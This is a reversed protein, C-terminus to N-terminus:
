GARSAGAASRPRPLRVAPAASPGAGSVATIARGGGARKGAYLAEDARALLADATEARDWEAVGVSCASGPPLAALLADAVRQALPAACGPLVAVFEDGGYRALVDGPRLRAQWGVAAASILRDGAEHGYTDNFVKLGDLDLMLVSLPTRTRRARGLEATMAEVMGRRNVLGTLPDRRAQEALATALDSRSIAVAAEEALVGLAAVVRHPLADLRDPFTLCLAGIPRDPGPVPVFAASAVGAASLEVLARGADHHFAAPLEAHPVLRLQGDRFSRVTGATPDALSLAPMAAAEVGAAATCHLRGGTPEYLLVAGAGALEGVARCVEERAQPGTAIARSVRGILRLDEYQEALAQESARHREVAQQLQEALQGAVLAVVGTVMARFVISGPDLPATVPYHLGAGLQIGAYLLGSGAWSLLAGRLGFRFAGELAAIALVTWTASYQDFSLLQLAVLCILNDAALEVAAWRTLTRETAVRRHVAVSAACVGLLLGAVVVTARWPDLANPVSPPPVYLAMEVPVLAAVLLRVRQMVQARRHLEALRDPAPPLDSVFRLSSGEGVVFIM